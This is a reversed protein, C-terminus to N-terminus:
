RPAESPSTMTRLGGSRVLAALMERDHAADLRAVEDAVARELDVDDGLPVAERRWQAIYAHRDTLGAVKAARDIATQFRRPLMGRRTSTGDTATVQAPVDRWLITVLQRRGARRRSM